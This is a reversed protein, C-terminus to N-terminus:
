EGRNDYIPKADPTRSQGFMLRDRIECYQRSMDAFTEGTYQKGRFKMHMM